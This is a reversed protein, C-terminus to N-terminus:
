REGPIESIISSATILHSAGKAVMFVTALSVTLVIAMAMVMLIFGPWRGFSGAVAPSQALISAIGGIKPRLAGDVRVPPKKATM